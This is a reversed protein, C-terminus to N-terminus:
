ESQRLSPNGKFFVIKGDTREYVADIGDSPLNYWFKHTETPEGRIGNSGLRWFKQFICLCTYPKKINSFIHSFFM